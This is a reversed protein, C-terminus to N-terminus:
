FTHPFHLQIDPVLWLAKIRNITENALFLSPVVKGSGVDEKDDAPDAGVVPSFAAIFLDPDRLSTHGSFSDTGYL